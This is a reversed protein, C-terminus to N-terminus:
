VSVDDPAEPDVGDSGYRAPLDTDLSGVVVARGGLVREVLGRDGDPGCVLVPRAVKAGDLAHRLALLSRDSLRAESVDIV